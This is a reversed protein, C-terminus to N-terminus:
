TTAKVLRKWAEHMPGPRVGLSVLESEAIRLAEAESTARVQIMSQKGVTVEYWRRESM